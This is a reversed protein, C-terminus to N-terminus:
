VREIPKPRRTYTGSSGFPSCVGGMHEDISKRARQLTSNVSTVSTDLALAAHAASFQLVERLILVARQNATLHQLATVFALEVSERQEYRSEPNSDDDAPWDPYPELWIPESVWAGLNYVDTRAPAYDASLIRRPRREALRL